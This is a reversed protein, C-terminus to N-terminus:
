LWGDCECITQFARIVKFVLRQKHADVVDPQAHALALQLAADIIDLVLELRQGSHAECGLDANVGHHSREGTEGGEM